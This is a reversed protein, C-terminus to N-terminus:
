ERSNKYLELLRRAARFPSVRGDVVERELGPLSGKVAPDNQFHDRLGWEITEQMWRKVQDRRIRQFWGNSKMLADHELVAQWLNQIGDRTVASCTVV